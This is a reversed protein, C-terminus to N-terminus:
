KKVATKKKVTRKEPAPPATATEVSRTDADAEYLEVLAKVQPTLEKGPAVIQRSRAPKKKVVKGTEHDLWIGDKATAM